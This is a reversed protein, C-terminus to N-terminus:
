VPVNVDIKKDEPKSKDPKKDRAPKDEEGPDEKDDDRGRPMHRDMQEKLMKRINDPLDMRDFSKRLQEQMQKQFKRADAAGAGGFLRMKPLDFKFRRGVGLGSFIGIGSNKFLEYAEKDMQKLAEMDKYSSVNDTENGDADVEKRTITIQGTENQEFQVDRGEADKKRIVTKTRIGINPGDVDVDIGIEPLSKMLKRIEEPLNKRDMKKWDWKGPGKRFIMRPHLRLVDQWAEPADDKHVLKAKHAPVPKGLVVQVTTKRGKQIVSLAIKDGAKHGRVAKVLAEGDAVAKGGMGVIVDYRKLGAKHAPGDEVLNGVMAGKGETKLHAALAAPVPMIRVGLWGGDTQDDDLRVEVRVTGDGLRVKTEGSAIGCGLVATLLMTVLTRKTM